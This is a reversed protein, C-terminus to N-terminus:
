PRNHLSLTAGGGGGAQALAAVFAAQVPPMEGMGVSAYTRAAEEAATWAEGFRGTERGPGRSPRWDEGAAAREVCYLM